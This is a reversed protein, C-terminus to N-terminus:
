AHSVVSETALGEQLIPLPAAFELGTMMGQDKKTVLGRETVLHTVVNSGFFFFFFSATVSLQSPVKINM